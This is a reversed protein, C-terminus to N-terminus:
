STTTAILVSDQSAPSGIVEFPTANPAEPSISGTVSQEPKPIILLREIDRLLKKSKQGIGRVYIADDELKRNLETFKDARLMATGYLRSTESYMYSFREHDQPQGHNFRRALCNFVRDCGTAYDLRHILAFHEFSQKSIVPIKWGLLKDEVFSVLDPNYKIIAPGVNEVGKGSNRGSGFAVVKTTTVTGLEGLARLIEPLKSSDIELGINIDIITKEVETM